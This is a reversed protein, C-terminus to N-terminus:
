AETKQESKEVSIQMLVEERNKQEKLIEDLFPQIEANMQEVSYDNAKPNESLNKWPKRGDWDFHGFVIVPTGKARITAGGKNLIWQDGYKYMWKADEMLLRLCSHSAPFAPLDFQHWGIGLHNEINFNYPLKWSRNVTSIALEKKWNTFMLGRKTQASKKGMSTPGWKQLEGNSYVGYAQIPYSFIVFKKVEKLIDLKQPFPSYAMLTSDIESPIMLTDARWKNKSDLRNLALITYREKESYKENFVAMVSDKKDKPFILRTYTIQPKAEEKLSDSVLSDKASPKQLNNSDLKDNSCSVATVTVMCLLVWHLIKM